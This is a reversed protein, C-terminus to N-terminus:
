YLGAVEVEPIGFRAAGYRKEEKGFQIIYVLRAAAPLDVWALSLARIIIRVSPSFFSSSFFPRSESPPGENGKGFDQVVSSVPCLLAITLLTVIIATHCLSRYLVWSQFAWSSFDSVTEVAGLFTGVM